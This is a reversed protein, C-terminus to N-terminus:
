ITLINSISLSNKENLHGGTEGETNYVGFILELFLTWEQASKKAHLLTKMNTSRYTYRELYM